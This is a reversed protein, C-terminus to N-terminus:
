IRQASTPADPVSRGLRPVVNRDTVELVCPFTHSTVIVETGLEDSQCPRRGSQKPRLAVQRNTSEDLTIAKRVWAASRDIAVARRQGCSLEVISRGSACVRVLGAERNPHGSYDM